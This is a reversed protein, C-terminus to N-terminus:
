FEIVVTVGSVEFTDMNVLADISQELTITRSILKEPTLKWNRDARILGRVSPVGQLTEEPAFVGVYDAHPILCEDNARKRSSARAIKPM